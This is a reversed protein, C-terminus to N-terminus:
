PTPERQPLAFAVIESISVPPLTIEPTVSGLGLNMGFGHGTVVAVYQRGGASYSIPSGSPVSGLSERWLEAGSAQDYAMFQRDVSGAFLLGAGTTLVGTAFPARQHVKWRTKGAQM